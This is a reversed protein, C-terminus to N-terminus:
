GMQISRTSLKHGRGPGSRPDFVAEVTGPGRRTSLVVIREFAPSETLARLGPRRKVDQWGAGHASALVAVGGHLAELVATADEAKGIEDTVIVDPAMGRLLLTVAYAKPANDVVDARPGLDHGPIGEYSAALESREDAVGVNLGPLGLKRDGRSFGRILDRLLTTKGGGPPSVILASRPRGDPTVLARLVKDGSGVAARAIRIMFTGVHRLARPSGDSNSVATGCFGIRHGGPLTAYGQRLQEELAYVSSDSVIQLLALGDERHFVLADEGRSVFGRPGLWRCRGDRLSVATPRGIRLRLECIEEQIEIPLTQLARRWPRPLCHLVSDPVGTSM